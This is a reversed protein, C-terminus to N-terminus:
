ISEDIVRFQNLWKDVKKVSGYSDLPFYYYIFLAINSLTLHNYDDALASALMLNNELVARLFGGTPIGQELYLMLSNIVGQSVKEYETPIGLHDFNLVRM